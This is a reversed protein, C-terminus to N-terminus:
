EFNSEDEEVEENVRALEVMKYRDGNFTFEGDEDQMPIWMRGGSQDLLNKIITSGCMQWAFSKGANSMYCLDLVINCLKDEDPVACVCKTVFSEYFANKQSEAEEPDIREKSAVMKFHKTAQKYEEYIRSIENYERSSYVTPSKLITYDFAADKLPKFDKFANEINWCIRNVACPSYGTQKWKEYFHLYDIMEQTKPEYAKLDDISKLSGSGIIGIFRRVAGFYSDTEYKKNETALNPYVYTMFYPKRFVAISANYEKQQIVEPTDEENPKCSRLSHWYEPMPEAIIGKARDICNQQYLQGCKIRYELDAYEASDPAFGAQVEFMSTVLNTVTGIDDNFALKNAEIIDAETPIKKAAKRQVCIIAPENRTKALLVPDNTVMNTDGDFDFGNMADAATDWANFVQATTIYRFWYAAELSKNLQMRRINNHCTMPARFCVVENDGNDIWYKNYIEGAKLLGTIEMNFMSQALAFPDGLILCYNGSVTLKGRAARDIRAKIATYIRKRVYPDNIMYPNIMLAKVHDDPMYDISEPSVKGAMFLISKRYDNGMVDKIETITPLTLNEIDKEDFDYSQLFQYNTTRVKELTEPTTKPTSFQYHNELTNREYEEWSSYSDWLKLMSVTLIVEADRVDRKDGWADIIEYTGAVKEAFDIFDFTYVMGKTWAWRTNMGSLTTEGNGNLAENVRRSYSPLMLGFGDSNNREIEYGEVYKMEPEGGDKDDIVIVNDKFHTICDNVVIFGKPMPLPKSGSCVLAQYAELKAPVLEKEMNRGNDLRKKLEPYIAANVYVITSNKIGGNTGLFRRYQIGNIKFGKNARDYDKNNKMVVSVYDKVFQNKNLEAYAAKIQRKIAAKTASNDAKNHKKRLYKIRRKYHTIKEGPDVLGNIEDIWRLVQSEGLTIVIEPRKSLAEELPLDLDWKARRLEESSIKFIKRQENLKM